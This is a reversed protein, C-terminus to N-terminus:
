IYEPEHIRDGRIEAPCYKCSLYQEGVEDIDVNGGDTDNVQPFLEGEYTLPDVENGEADHIVPADYDQTGKVESLFRWTHTTCNPITM